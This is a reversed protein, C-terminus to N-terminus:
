PPNTTDYHLVVQRCANIFKEYTHTYKMINIYSLCLRINEKTYGLQNDYRDVSIENVLPEGTYFCLGNQIVYQDELDQVTIEFPLNRKIADRERVKLFGYSFHETSEPRKFAIKKYCGCSLSNDGRLVNNLYYDKIKGCTCICKIKRRSRRKTGNEYSIDQPVEEIFTLYSFQEGPKLIRKATM